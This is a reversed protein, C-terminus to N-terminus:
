GDNILVALKRSIRTRCTTRGPVEVTTHFDHYGHILIKRKALEQMM